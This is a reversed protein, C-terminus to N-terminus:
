EAGPAASRGPPVFRIGTIAGATAERLRCCLREQHERELVYRWTANAVEVTLVQARLAIPLARRAVDAGALSPWLGRVRELMLVDGSCIGRLAEDLLEGLPRAGARHSGIEGPALDPGYWEALTRERRRELATAGRAAHTLRHRGTRETWPAAREVGSASNPIQLDM